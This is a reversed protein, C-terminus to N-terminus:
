SWTPKIWSVSSTTWSETLRLRLPPPTLRSSGGRAWPEDKANRVTMMGATATYNIATGNIVIRHRTVTPEVKSQSASQNKAPEDSPKNSATAVHNVATFLFLMLFTCILPLSRTNM